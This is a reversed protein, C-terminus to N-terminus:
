FERRLHGLYFEQLAMHGVVGGDKVVEDKEKKLYSGSKFPRNL